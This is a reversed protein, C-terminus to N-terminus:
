VRAAGTDPWMCEPLGTLWGNVLILKYFSFLLTQGLGCNLLNFFYGEPPTDGEGGMFLQTEHKLNLKMVM